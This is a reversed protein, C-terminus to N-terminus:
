PKRPHLAGTVAPREAGALSCSFSVDGDARPAWFIVVTDGPRVPQLFKASRIDWMTAGIAAIIDRLLVAGPIIPNGPFHGDSAPHGAPFHRIATGRRPSCISPVSKVVV